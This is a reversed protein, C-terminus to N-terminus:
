TWFVCWGTYLFHHFCFCVSYNTDTIYAAVTQLICYEPSGVSNFSPSSIATVQDQPDKGNQGAFCRDFGTKTISDCNDRTTGHYLLKEGAGGVARNKESINKKQVEYARRLHVNQVREIQRSFCSTLHAALNAKIIKLICKKLLYIIIFYM